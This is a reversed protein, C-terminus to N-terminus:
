EREAQLEYHSSVVTSEVHLSNESVSLDWEGNFELKKGDDTVTYPYDLHTVYGTGNIITWKADGGTESTSTFEMTYSHALIGGMQEDDGYLWSSVIWKGQLLENNRKNHDEKSCGFLFASILCFVLMGNLRFHKNM